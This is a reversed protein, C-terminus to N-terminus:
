EHAARSRSCIKWNRWNLIICLKSNHTLPLMTDSKLVLVFLASKMHLHKVTPTNLRRISIDRTDLSITGVKSNHEKLKTINSKVTEPKLARFKAKFKYQRFVERKQIDWTGSRFNSAWSINWSKEAIALGRTNCIDIPLPSWKVHPPGDAQTFLFFALKLQIFNSCM